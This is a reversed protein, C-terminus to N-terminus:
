YVHCCHVGLLRFAKESVHLPGLQGRRRVWVQVGFRLQMVLLPKQPLLQLHQFQNLAKLLRHGGQIPKLHGFFFHKAPDVAHGAVAFYTVRLDLAHLAQLQGVFHQAFFGGFERKGAFLVRLCDLASADNLHSELLSFLQKRLVCAHKQVLLVALGDEFQDEFFRDERGFWHGFRDNDLLGFFHECLLQLAQCHDVPHVLALLVPGGFDLSVLQGVELVQFLVDHVLGNEFHVLKYETEELLFDFDLVQRQDLQQLVEADLHGLLVSEVDVTRFELFGLEQVGHVHLEHLAEEFHEVLVVAADLWLRPVLEESGEDAGAVVVLGDPVDDFASGPPVAFPVLAEDAGRELVVSLVLFAFAGVEDPRGPALGLDRVGELLGAVLAAHVAFELVVEM